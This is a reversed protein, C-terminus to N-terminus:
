TPRPPFIPVVTLAEGLADLWAVGTPRGSSHRSSPAADFPRTRPDDPSSTRNRGNRAAHGGTVDSRRALGIQRIPMTKGAWHRWNRRTSLSQTVMRCSCSSATAPPSSSACVDTCQPFPMLSRQSPSWYGFLAVLVDLGSLAVCPEADGRFRWPRPGAALRVPFTGGQQRAAACARSRRGPFPPGM